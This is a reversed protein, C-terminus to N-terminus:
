LDFETESYETEQIRYNHELTAKATETNIKLDGFSGENIEFGGPLFDYACDEIKTVLTCEKTLYRNEDNKANYNYEQMTSTPLGLSAVEEEKLQKDGKFLTVDEIQGSDGYGDYNVEITTIGANFLTVCVEKLAERNKRKKEDREEQWNTM